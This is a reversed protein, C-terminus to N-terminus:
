REQMRPKSPSHTTPVDSLAYPPCPAAAHAPTPGVVLTVSDGQDYRILPQVRNALNTMLVTHSPEGPLVPRYDQDVPYRGLYPMGVLSADSVFSEVDQQTVEPDTVWEDFNETLQPKTTPPLFRPDSVKSRLDKYLRRYYPSCTRVFAVLEALRAQQRAAIAAPGGHTARRADLAIKLTLNRMGAWWLTWAPSQSM